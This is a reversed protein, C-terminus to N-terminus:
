NLRNRIAVTSSFVKRLRRDDATYKINATDPDGDHDIEFSVPNTAINDALGRVLLSVKVSVVKDANAPNFTEYFSVSRDAASAVGYLLQMSEVGEVLEDDNRYLAPEGAVNKRIEYWTNAISFLSSISAGHYDKTMPVNANGPDGTGSQHVIGDFDSNSTNINTVQLIEATKCDTIMVIDWQEIGSDPTIRTQESSNPAGERIIKIPSTGADGGGTFLISDALLEPTVNSPYGDSATTILSAEAGSVGGTFDFEVGGSGENLHNRVSSDAMNKICGFFGAQRIDRKLYEIAFRGNEQIRGMEETMKYTKTASLFIQLVALVVLLGLVLAVMLEIMSLGRNRSPYNQRCSNSMM